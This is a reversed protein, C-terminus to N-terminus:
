CVATAYSVIGQTNNSLIANSPLSPRSCTFAICLPAKVTQGQKRVLTCARVNHLVVRRRIDNASAAAVDNNYATADKLCVVWCCCSGLVAFRTPICIFRRQFM